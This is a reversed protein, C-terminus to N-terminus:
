LDGHEVEFTIDVIVRYGVIKDDEVVGKM